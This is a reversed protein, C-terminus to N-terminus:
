VEGQRRNAAVVVQSDAEQRGRLAGKWGSGDSPARRSELVLIRDTLPFILPYVFAESFNFSYRVTIEVNYKAKVVEAPTLSNKEWRELDKKLQALKTEVSRKQKQKAGEAAEAKKKAIERDFPSYQYIFQSSTYLNLFCM